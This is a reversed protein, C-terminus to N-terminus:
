RRPGLSQHTAQSRLPVGGAGRRVTRLTRRWWNAMAQLIQPVDESRGRLLAVLGLVFWMGTVALVILVGVHGPM